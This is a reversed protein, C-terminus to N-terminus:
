WYFGIKNEIGYVGESVHFIVKKIIKLEKYVRGFCPLDCIQYELRSCNHGTKLVAINLLACDVCIM